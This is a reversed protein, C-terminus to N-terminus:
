DEMTPSKSNSLQIVPTYCSRTTFMNNNSSCSCQVHCTCVVTVMYGCVCESMAKNGPWQVGMNEAHLMSFTPTAQSCPQESVEVYRQSAAGIVHAASSRVEPSSHNLQRIVLVLGGIANLDKANDLNHVHYELEELAHLLQEITANMKALTQSHELMMGVEEHLTYPLESRRRGSEENVSVPLINGLEKHSTTHVSVTEDDRSDQVTLLLHEASDDNNEESYLSQLLEKRSFVKTKKNVIGRRDSKGFYHTRRHDGRFKIEESEQSSSRSDSSNGDIDDKESDGDESAGTSESALDVGDNVDEDDLLKAEKLGTQLNMRVHLGPPIAQGERVVQWQKTAVFVDRREEVHDDSEEEIVLIDGDDDAASDAGGRSPQVSGVSQETSVTHLIVAVHLLLLLYFRRLKLGMGTDTNVQPHHYKKGVTRCTSLSNISKYSERPASPM